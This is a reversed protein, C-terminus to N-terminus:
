ADLGLVDLSETAHPSRSAAAGLAPWFRCQLPRSRRSQRSTGSIGSSTVLLRRSAAIARIAARWCPTSEDVRLQLAAPSSARTRDTVADGGAAQVANMATDIRYSMGFEAIFASPHRRDQRAPSPATRLWRLAAPKHRISGGISTASPRAGSTGHSTGPSPLIPRSDPQMPRDVREGASQVRRAHCGRSWARLSAAPGGGCNEWVPTRGARRSASNRRRGMAPSREIVSRVRLSSSARNRSRTRRWRRGLRLHVHPDIAEDHIEEPARLM